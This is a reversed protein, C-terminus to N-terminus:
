EFYNKSLKRLIIAFIKKRVLFIGVALFIFVAAMLLYGLARNELLEGLALASSIAIFVLAFFSLSGILLVEVFSTSLTAIQQFIKLHYYKRTARLYTKSTQYASSGNEINAQSSM